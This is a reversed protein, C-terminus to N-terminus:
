QCVETGNRGHAASAPMQLPGAHQGTHVDRFAQKNFATPEREARGLGQHHASNLRMSGQAKSSCAVGECLASCASQQTM